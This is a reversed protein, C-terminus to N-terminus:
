DQNESIVPTILLITEKNQSHAGEGGLAKVGFMKSERSNDTKQKFGGIVLTSGNPVLTRMNFRKEATTPATITAQQTTSGSTSLNTTYSTLAVLTSLTSSIQLYIQNDKIKPLLYLTFGSTVSGPTLSATTTTNSATPLALSVSALYSTDTTIRIEAVQNNMTTVMPETVVSLKGQMSLAQILASSTGTTVQFATPSYASATLYSGAAVNTASAMPGILKYTAGLIHQAVNWDIGLEHAKDLEIELVQVKLKVQQSLDKNLQTIYRDIADVNNPHDYVSVSTTSESVYVKGETSKLENLANKLDNWISISTGQLGSYQQDSMAGVASSGSTNTSTSSSSSSSSSSNSSSNGNSNQGVLYNATGPMFAINFTKSVFAAWALEQAGVTYAYNTKSALTELAGKITGSYNISVPRNKQTEPSYKIIVGTNRLIHSTLFSFPLQQGSISIRSKLWAPQTDMDVPNIDVYYGPNVVVPPAIADAATKQQDINTAVKQANLDADKLTQRSSCGGLLMAATISIIALKIISKKM